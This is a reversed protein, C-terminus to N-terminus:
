IYYFGEPIHFDGEQRKPGLDGITECISFSKILVYKSSDDSFAWLELVKNWKMARWFIRNSPFKISKANFLSVVNNYKSLNAASVRPQQLQNALWDQSFSTNMILVFCFSFLFNNM